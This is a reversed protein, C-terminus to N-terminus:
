KLKGRSILLNQALRATKIETTKCETIPDIKIIFETCGTEQDRLLCGNDSKKKITQESIQTPSCVAFHM